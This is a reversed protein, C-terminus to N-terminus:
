FKCVTFHGFKMLVIQIKGFKYETYGGARDLFLINKDNWFIAPVNEGGLPLGKRFKRVM